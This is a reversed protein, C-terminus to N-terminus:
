HMPWYSLIDFINKATPTACLVEPIVEQLFFFLWQSMFIAVMKLIQFCYAYSQNSMLIFTDDCIVGSFTQKMSFVDAIDERYSKSFSMNIHKSTLM